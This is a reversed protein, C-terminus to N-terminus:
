ITLTVEDAKNEMMTLPTGELGKEGEVYIMCLSGSEGKIKIKISFHSLRVILSSIV